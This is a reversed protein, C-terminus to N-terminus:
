NKKNGDCLIIEREKENLFKFDIWVTEPPLIDKVKEAWELVVVSSFPWGLSILDQSSIRYCDIHFLTMKGEYRKMINFTPSLVNEKIGLGKALGQTFTTKGGGLDGRLAIVLPKKNRLIQKGLLFGQKQTQRASSTKM